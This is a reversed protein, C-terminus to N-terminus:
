QLNYTIKNCIDGPKYFSVSRAAKNKISDVFEDIEKDCYCGCLYLRSKDLAFSVALKSALSIKKDRLMERIIQLFETITLSLQIELIYLSREM